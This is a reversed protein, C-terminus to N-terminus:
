PKFSYWYIGDALREFRARETAQPTVDMQSPTVYVGAEIQGSQEFALTFGDAYVGVEVPGLARFSEPWGSEKIVAYAPGTGAHLNKYLVAADHRLRALDSSRLRKEAKERPLEGDCGSLVAALLLLFLPRM